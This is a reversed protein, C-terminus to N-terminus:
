LTSIEYSIITKEFKLGSIGLYSLKSGLNLKQRQCIRIKQNWIHCYDKKWLYGFLPSKAGFKIKKKECLVKYKLFIRTHQNWICCYNKLNQGLLVWILFKQDLAWLKKIKCSFQFNANQSIWSHQIWIHCYNKWIGTWFYGFLVM